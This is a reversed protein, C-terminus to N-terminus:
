PTPAHPFGLAPRRRRSRAVVVLGVAGLLAGAPVLPDFYSLEVRREGAPVRLGMQGIATRHLPAEVGDITAQWGDDFTRGIEVWVPAASRTRLRLRSSRSESVVLEADDGSGPGPPAGGPTEVWEGSEGFPYGATRAAALAEAQGPHFRVRDLSRVEPLRDPDSEVTMRPAPRGEFRDRLVEAVDRHLAITGVGCAGAFRRVLPPDGWVGAFAELALRAPETLMLDYDLALAYEYGWLTAVYPELTEIGNRYSLPGPGEYRLPIEADRSFARDTLLRGDPPHGALVAPPEAITDLPAVPLLNWGNRTLDLALLLVVGAELARRGGGPSAPRGALALVGSALGALALSVLMERRMWAVLGAEAAAPLPADRLTAALWLAAEPRVLLLVAMAALGAVVIAALVVALDPGGGASRDAAARGDDSHPPAGGLRREWGLAAAFPLAASALLLLKEPYRLQDLIPLSGVLPGFLPNHRGLALFLGGAIMLVWTWRWPLDRRGIAGLGLVAVLLGPYISILYPFRKDHVSQGYFLEEDLRMPDGFPHPVAWELLRAPPMSREAAEAREVGGGRPSSALRGATPLLQVAGLLLAIGLTLALRPATREGRALSDAALGALAIGSLVCNAPEGALLQAAIGLGALAADRRWAAGAELARGAWLLIWPTWALGCFLTLLTASSVFFGGTAFALAALLATPPRCGLHRALRWAGAYGWAAHLLLSLRISLAAGALAALWTPPYFAAYNPNSLIPQGGNLAPNWWPLGESAARVLLTRLPLHFFALDGASLVSGPEFLTRFVVALV